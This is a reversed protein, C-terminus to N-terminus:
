TRLRQMFSIIMMTKRLVMIKMTGDFKLFCQRSSHKLGYILKRLHSGMNEKGKIVFCKPQTVFVNRIIRWGNQFTTKVHM